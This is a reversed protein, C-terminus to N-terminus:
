DEVGFTLCGKYEVKVVDGHAEIPQALPSDDSHPSSLLEGMAYTPTLDTAQFQGVYGDRFTVEFQWWPYSMPHRKRTSLWIQSPPYM